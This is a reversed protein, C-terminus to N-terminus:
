HFTTSIVYRRAIMLPNGIDACIDLACVAPNEVRDFSIFFDPKRL